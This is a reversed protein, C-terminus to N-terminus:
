LGLTDWKEKDTLFWAQNKKQRRDSAYFNIQGFLSDSFQLCGHWWVKQHIKKSDNCPLNWIEHLVSIFLWLNEKRKRFICITRIFEVGPSNDINSSTLSNSYDHQHKLSHFTVKYAVNKGGDGDHCWFIGLSRSLTLLDSHVASPIKGKKIDQM